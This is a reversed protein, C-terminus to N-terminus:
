VTMTFAYTAVPIGASPCQLFVRTFMDGVGAGDGSILFPTTGPFTTAPAGWTQSKNVVTGDQFSTLTVNTAIDLNTVAPDSDCLGLSDSTGTGTFAVQWTGQGDGVCSGAGEISWSAPGEDGSTVNVAGTATCELTVGLAASAPAAGLLVLSGAALASVLLTRIRHTKNAPEM